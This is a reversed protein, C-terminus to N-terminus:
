GIGEEDLVQQAISYASNAAPLGAYIASHLLVEAIESSTLGNRLAARVHMAIETEARLTTLIALTICSRTRRDLGPRSWVDGWAVRTAFEQFPATFPTTRAIVADVHADGLVERRVGMGAEDLRHVEAGDRAAGADPAGGTERTPTTEHTGGAGGTEGAGGANGTKRTSDTM